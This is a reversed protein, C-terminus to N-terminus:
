QGEESSLTSSSLPLCAGFGVLGFGDGSGSLVTKGTELSIAFTWGFGDRLDQRGDESGQLMMKGDVVEMHEITSPPVEPVEPLEFIQQRDFDIRMFRPLGADEPQVQHCAGDLTCENLSILSFLLPKAGDYDGAPLTQPIASCLLAVTICVIWYRM